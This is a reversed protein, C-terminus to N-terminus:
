GVALAFAQLFRPDPRDAAAFRERLRYNREMKRGRAQQWLEQYRALRTASADGAAIAEVAVQAALRGALMANTIGGGTLPDVQCAADGVVMLGDSVLHRPPPAVPVNGAVLTVPYGRALFRHGEIFRDLLGFVTAPGAGDRAMELWLDGQVGLGVNGRGEGKPFVWAYGGPALHQDIFYCTCAPDIDIGALLYQACVMTDQRALPPCLGAWRGVQAEVGDAAIVVTAEAEVECRRGALENRQVRVGRVRSGEMLLGTVAAKVRVAAGALAAREALVRDFVRRELIYGRGGEARLTRTTDGVTAHIEAKSVQAAIWRPDPAIFPALAEHGVGEACRVPSGIEQRKELLLVSLGAEAAMQAATAGGPGAGVVILDYRGRWPAPAPVPKPGPLRLAGTPCAELCNGCDTCASSALLRTEALTLAGEPCVNVCGGCFACRQRDIIVM